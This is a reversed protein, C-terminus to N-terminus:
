SSPNIRTCNSLGCFTRSSGTLRTVTRLLSCITFAYRFSCYYNSPQHLLNSVDRIGFAVAVELDPHGDQMAPSKIRPSPPTVPRLM